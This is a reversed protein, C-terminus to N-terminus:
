DEVVLMTSPDLVLPRRDTDPAGTKIPMVHIKKGEPQLQFATDFLDAINVLPVPIGDPGPPEHRHTRVAFWINMANEKALSKLSTLSAKVTDDFPLGDILMM